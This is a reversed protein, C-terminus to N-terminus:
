KDEDSNNDEMNNNNKKGYLQLIKKTESTDELIAYKVFISYASPDDLNEYGVFIRAYTLQNSLLQFTSWWSYNNLFQHITVSQKKISSTVSCEWFGDKLVPKSKKTIKKGRVEEYFDFAKKWQEEDNGDYVKFMKVNKSNSLVISNFLDKKIERENPEEQEIGLIDNKTCYKGAFDNSIHDIHKEYNLCIDVVSKTLSYFKTKKIKEKNEPLWTSYNFLFRCLQYLKDRNLHHHDMIISDFNGITENILTVSMSVCTFGTIFTPVNPNDKILQQIIFSPEFIKKLIKEKELIPLKKAKEILSNKIVDDKIYKRGSNESQRYLVIGDGNIIIVNACPFYKFIIEATSYHTVKRNYAPIFHYSFINLPIKLQSLIFNFYSLLLIENGIDFPFRENYLYYNKIENLKALKVIEIPIINPINSSLILDEKSLHEYIIFDCNNVGFYETSRMINCEIEIDHIFIKSFLPDTQDKWIKDPTASYGIISKVISYNNMIVVSSRFAPIYEHAEDIHIVIKKKSLKKSDELLDLLNPITIKFRTEHACCIICEINENEKLIKILKDVDKAHHCGNATKKNSNLIIINREGIEEKIRGILMSSADLTNMTLVLHINPSFDNKISYICIFSKGEQPKRIVLSIKCEIEMEIQDFTYCDSM